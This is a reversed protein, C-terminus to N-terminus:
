GYIFMIIVRVVLVMHEEGWDSYISTLLTFDVNTKNKWVYLGTKTPHNPRLEAFKLVKDM